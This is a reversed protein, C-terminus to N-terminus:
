VAAPPALRFVEVAYLPDLEMRSSFGVVKRGTSREVIAKFTPAIAEQFAERTDRVAQGQGAEILTKEALTPRSDVIVLVFEDLVFVKAERVNDGYSEHHLKLVEREIEDRIREPTVGEM